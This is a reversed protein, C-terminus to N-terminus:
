KPGSLLSADKISSKSINSADLDKLDDWDCIIRKDM